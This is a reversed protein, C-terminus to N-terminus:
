FFALAKTGPRSEKYPLVLPVLTCAGPSVAPVLDTGAAAQWPLCQLPHVGLPVGPLAGRMLLKSLATRSSPSRPSLGLNCRHLPRLGPKLEAFM